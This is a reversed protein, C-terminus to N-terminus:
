FVLQSGSVAQLGDCLHEGFPKGAGEMVVAVLSVWWSDGQGDEENMWFTMKM